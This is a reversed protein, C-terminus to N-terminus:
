WTISYLIAEMRYSFSYSFHSYNYFITPNYIIKILFINKFAM